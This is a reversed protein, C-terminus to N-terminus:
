LTWSRPVPRGSVALVARALADQLATHSPALVRVVTVPGVLSAGWRVPVASLAERARATGDDGVHLVLGIGRSGALGAPGMVRVLAAADLRLADVFALQGDVAVDIRDTLDLQAVEEGRAARGLVIGECLTLRGGATVDVRTRRALKAGDFVITPQPLHRLVAGAGVALGQDVRAATDDSRYVRECAVTSVTLDHAAASVDASWADGGALGGSTNLLLAEIPHRTSTFRLKASGAQYSRELAPRGDRDVLQVIARGVSRQDRGAPLTM